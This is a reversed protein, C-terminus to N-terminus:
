AARGNNAPEAASRNRDRYSRCDWPVVQELALRMAAFDLISLADAENDDHPMWGRDVCETVIMRKLEASLVARQQETKREGRIFLRGIFHSKVAGNNAEFSRIGYDFCRLETIVSLGDLKRATAQHTNDGIWPSEFVVLSDPPLKDLTADLWDRYAAAFKGVNDGTRPLTHAGHLPAALGPKWFAWGLVTALDLTLIAGVM